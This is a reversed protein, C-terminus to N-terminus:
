VTSSGRVSRLIYFHEKVGDTEESHHYEFGCKEAVRRSKLNGDYFAIWLGIDPDKTRAYDILASVAEPIFGNGWYSKGLWYGIELDGSPISKEPRMRAPVFGCCGILRGDCRRLVAFTGPFSFVTRIVERSVEVSTHPPWGAPTGVEPDKALNYLEEADDESWPRLILRPTTM